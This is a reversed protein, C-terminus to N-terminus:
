FLPQGIKPEKMNLGQTLCTLRGPEFRGQTVLWWLYLKRPDGFGYVERGGGGGPAVGKRRLRGTASRRGSARVSSPTWARANPHLIQNKKKPLFFHMTFRTQIPNLYSVMLFTAPQRRSKSSDIWLTHTQKKSREAGWGSTDTREMTWTTCALRWFRSTLLKALSRASSFCWNFLFRLITRFSM